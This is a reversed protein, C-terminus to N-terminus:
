DWGPFPLFRGDKGERKGAFIEEKGMLDKGFGLM